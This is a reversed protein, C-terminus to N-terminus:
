VSLDALADKISEYIPFISTFGSIEFVQKVNPNLTSLCIKGNKKKLEKASSLLVRLGASSIYDLSECDVLIRVKEDVLYEGLTEGLKGATSADLRGKIKIININGQKEQTIDM